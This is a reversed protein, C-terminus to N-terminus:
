VKPLVRFRRGSQQDVLYYQGNVIEIQQGTRHAYDALRRAYATPSLPAPPYLGREVWLLYARGRFYCVIAALV